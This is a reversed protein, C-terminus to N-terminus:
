QERYVSISSAAQYTPMIEIRNLNVHKPRTLCWLITEAIDEALLPKTDKYLTSASKKDGKFRINSFNTEALGPEINTVRIKSGLLDARLNLSFQKIFAKTAGYVNGGFYPYIGAISGINIIYGDNRELMGPLVAHTCYLAGKINTNIMVDWDEISCNQAPNTSLAIGANNILTTIKSFDQPLNKFFNEVEQKNSVDFDGIYVESDKISDKISSLKEKNRGNIILRAGKKSLLDAAAYGFGSTAGTILITENTLNM